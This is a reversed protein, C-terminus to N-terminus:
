LECRYRLQYIKEAPEVIIVNFDRADFEFIPDDYKMESFPFVSSGSYKPYVLM